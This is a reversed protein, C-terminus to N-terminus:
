SRTLQGQKQMELKIALRQATDTVGASRLLTDIAQENYTEEATIGFKGVYQQYEGTAAITRRAPDSALGRSGPSGPRGAGRDTLLGRLETQGDTLLQVSAALSQLVTEMATLRTQTEPDTATLAPATSVTGEGQLNEEAAMTAEGQHMGAEHLAQHMQVLHELAETLSDLGARMGLLRDMANMCAEYHQMNGSMHQMTELMTDMNASLTAEQEEADDMVTEEGHAAALTTHHYAARMKELIAAGTFVCSLITWVDAGMDAIEVHALEFSMGLLGLRALRQLRLIEEPFDRVYLVGDVQIAGDVIQAATIVGIKHQADHGRLTSSVGIGMGLLSSLAADAVATPLLVCHGDAGGPASDSPVDLQTLIGSFPLRNPHEPLAPLDLSMAYLEVAMDWEGGTSSQLVEPVDKPAADPHLHKWAARVKRLVGPRDAAPIDVKQGRYGAGLAAVAAGVHAADPEAGPTGSKLLKWTSPDASPTYFFDGRHFKKGNRTQFNQTEATVM